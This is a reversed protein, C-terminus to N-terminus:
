TPIYENGYVKFITHGGMVRENTITCKKDSCQHDKHFQGKSRLVVKIVRSMPMKLDIELQSSSNMRSNPSPTPM